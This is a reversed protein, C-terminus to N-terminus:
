MLINEKELLLKPPFPSPTSAEPITSREDRISGYKQLFVEQKWLKLVSFALFTVDAILIFFDCVFISGQIVM